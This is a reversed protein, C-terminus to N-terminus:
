CNLKNMKPIWIVTSLHIWFHNGYRLFPMLRKRRALKKQTLKRRKRRQAQFLGESSEERSSGKTPKPKPKERKTKSTQNQIIRKRPPASPNYVSESGSGMEFDNYLAPAKRKRKSRRHTSPTDSDSNSNLDDSNLVAVPIEKQSGLM